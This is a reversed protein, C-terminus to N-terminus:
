LIGDERLADEAAAYGDNYGDSHGNGYGEREGDNYGEGYGEEYSERQLEETVPSNAVEQDLYEEILKLFDLGMYDKEIIDLVSTGLKDRERLFKNLEQEIDIM